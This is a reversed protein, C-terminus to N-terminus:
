PTEMSLPNRSKMRRPLTTSRATATMMPVAKPATTVAKVLPMMMCNTAAMKLAGSKSLSAKGMLPVGMWYPGNRVAERLKRMTAAFGLTPALQEVPQYLLGRSGVRGGVRRDYGLGFRSLM